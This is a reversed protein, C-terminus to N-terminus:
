RREKLESGKDEKQQSLTRCRNQRLNVLGAHEYAVRACSLSRDSGRSVCSVEAITGRFLAADVHISGAIM